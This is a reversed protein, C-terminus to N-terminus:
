EEIEKRYLGKRAQIKKGMVAGTLFIGKILKINKLITKPAYPEVTSTYYDNWLRELEQEESTTFMTM